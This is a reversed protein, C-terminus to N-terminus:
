KKLVKKLHEIDINFESIYMEIERESIQNTKALFSIVNKIEPDQKEKNKKIYKIKKNYTKPLIILFDKYWHSKTQYISYLRNTTLNIIKAFDPSYMSLWRQLMYPQFENENEFNDLLDGKKCFVIDRIFDFLLM